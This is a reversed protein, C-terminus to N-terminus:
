IESNRELEQLDIALTEIAGAASVTITYHGPREYEHTWTLAGSNVWVGDQYSADPVADRATSTEGDGWDVLWNPERDLLGSDVVTWLQARLVVTLGEIEVDTAIVHEKYLGCGTLAVLFFLVALGSLALRRM